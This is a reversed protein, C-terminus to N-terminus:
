SKELDSGMDYDDETSSRLRELNSIHRILILFCSLFALGTTSPPTSFLLTIFPFIASAVISGVSIHGSIWVAVAFILLTPLMAAPTLVLFVGTTTAVAKGGSFRLFFMWTHGGIAAAGCLLILNGQQPFLNQAFWVTLFGKLVDTILTALGPGTGLVYFVNAAGPNGSGRERIDVGYTALSILYGSPISGIFYSAAVLTFDFASM